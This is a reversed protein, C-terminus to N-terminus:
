LSGKAVASRIYRNVAQGIKAGPHELGSETPNATCVYQRSCHRCKVLLLKRTVSLDKTEGKNKALIKFSLRKGCNCKM